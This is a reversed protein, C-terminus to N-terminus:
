LRYVVNGDVLTYVARGKLTRGAFPTNKSKSMLKAPEVTWERKADVITIDAPSGIRLTGTGGSDLRAIRAPNLTMARIATTFDLAGQEVLGLALSLATELGVIGNAAQDFEVDKENVSHPAHDTAIADITGDKLGEILAAIDEPERLPPNMKFNTDYGEVSTHDLTLHHPTAEATVRVGRSKADRIIAVAGRTSVHAVHLRAGSGQALMVDRAVMSDEAAAPIGKLGLRTSVVGEHMVGNSALLPDEAHTIVPVDFIRSYELASLMLAGDAMGRGDDSFAVCGAEVLEAMDSLSEGKLGKTVAGVPRVRVVGEDVAKKLIYRTVSANDNVPSTNAMCLVTTFGGASASATGTKITEKYEFGPERLHVHLDVFGPLVLKGTADIVDWGELSEVGKEGAPKISAIRGGMVVVDYLGDMNTAQDIVRGNKIVLRKM